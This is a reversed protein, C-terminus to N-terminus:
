ISTRYPELVVASLAIQWIITYLTSQNRLTKVLNMNSQRFLLFAKQNQCTQEFATSGPLLFLLSLVLM